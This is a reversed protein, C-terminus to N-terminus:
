ITCFAILFYLNSFIIYARIYIYTDALFFFLFVLALPAVQLYPILRAPM